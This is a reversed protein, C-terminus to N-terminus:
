KCTKICLIGEICLLAVIVLFLNKQQNFVIKTRSFMNTTIPQIIKAGKTTIPSITLWEQKAKNDFLWAYHKKKRAVVATNYNEKYLALKQKSTICM